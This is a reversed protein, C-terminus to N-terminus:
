KCVSLTDRFSQDSEDVIAQMIAERVESYGDGSLVLLDPVRHQM